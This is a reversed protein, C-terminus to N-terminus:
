GLWNRYSLKGPKPHVPLVESGAKQRYYPSLPHIWNTYNTGYPRQIVGEVDGAPNFVLRLRRPMGFFMEVSVLRADEPSTPPKSGDSVKTPRMWPLGSITAAKGFPVNAWVLSWLGDGPDVLTTMPGGGRMSTRNGAGGSPAFDQFAFLAMAALAPPLADYRDRRVMVDANNKATNAGASDIFLMDPPNAEGDLKEMDQLFRPGDGGLNFAAAFPALKQELRKPDPGRRQQWDRRDVPPDAMFVLGILLELCAVNLDARPWDPAAIADDAIDCPRIVRRGGNKLRMPIWPDTILNM